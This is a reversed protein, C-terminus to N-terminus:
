IQLHFFHILINQICVWIRRRINKEPWFELEEEVLLPFMYGDYYGDHTKSKFSWKGLQSQLVDVLHM